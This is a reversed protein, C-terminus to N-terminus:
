RIDAHRATSGVTRAANVYESPTTGLVRNFATTFASPTSYGVAFATRAVPHGAALRTVGAQVRVQSRWVHFPMRTEDAFLRTLTRRSSGVSRALAELTRRDGPDALVIDAVAMARDDNPMPISIPRALAPRLIDLAVREARGRADVDLDQALYTILPGLLDDVVIVTPERWPVNCREPLLLPSVMEASTSAGTQHPTGAPVWLARSTPLVWQSDGVKVGLVGTRAWILQHQSHSHKEYWQGPDLSFTAVAIAESRLPDHPDLPDFPEPMTHVM